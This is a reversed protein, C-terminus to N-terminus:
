DLCLFDDVGDLRLGAGFRAPVWAPGGNLRAANAGTEDAAKGAASGELRWSAVLGNPDPPRPAPPALGLGGDADQFLGRAKVPSGPVPPVDQELPRWPGST